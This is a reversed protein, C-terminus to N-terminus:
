RSGSRKRAVFARVEAVPRANLVRGAEVWGRRATGVGFRMQRELASARHSDSDITLTVGAAAAARARAGDLDLHAPAGDIELATGTEAAAAYIAEYDLPYGPRRGVMQNSPHTIVNVLPHSIAQLCRRTLLAASHGASEHLSALVIDLRELVDDACDLQGDPLIDVELGQLIEISPYRERMREIEDRQRVLQDPTVTRSAASNESHDTIAVYEYGLAAAARVMTEITDQGDSYTSHVHLDGRIQTQEILAPLRGAAAAELEGADNRLEPPIPPLGARAYVDEERACLDLMLRRRRLQAVHRASGTATFLATGFEDAPSVRIDVETGRVSALVRRGARHLVDDIPRAMGIADIVPGPAQVRAAIALGHVLPEFRRVDGAATAYEVGPVRRLADLCSEIIECARGLPLPQLEIGLHEGALALRDRLIAPLREARPDDLLAQLDGPTVLGYDRALSAAQDHTVVGRELLLRHLLPLRATAARVVKEPGLSAAERLRDLAPGDIGSLAAHSPDQVEHLLSNLADPPLGDLRTSARRLSAASSDGRIEALCALHRITDTLAPVSVDEAYGVRPPCDILSAFRARARPRRRPGGM